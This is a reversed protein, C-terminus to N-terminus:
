SACRQNRNGEKREDLSLREKIDNEEYCSAFIQLCIAKHILHQFFRIPPMVSQITRKQRSYRHLASCKALNMM